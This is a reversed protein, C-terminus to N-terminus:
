WRSKTSNTKWPDVRLRYRRSLRGASGITGFGASGVHDVLDADRAQISVCCSPDMRLPGGMQGDRPIVDTSPTSTRATAPPQCTTSTTIGLVLAFTITVPPGWAHSSWMEDWAALLAQAHLIFLPNTPRCAPWSGHFGFSEGTATGKEKRKKLLFIQHLVSVLHKKLDVHKRSSNPLKRPKSLPLSPM